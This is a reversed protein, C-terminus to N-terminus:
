IEPIDLLQLSGKQQLFLGKLLTKMSVKPLALEFFAHFDLVVGSGHQLVSRLVLEHMDKLM